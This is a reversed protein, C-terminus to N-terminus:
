NLDSREIEELFKKFASGRTKTGISKKTVCQLKNLRHERGQCCQYTEEGLRAELKHPM